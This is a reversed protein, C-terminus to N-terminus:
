MGISPGRSRGLSWSISGSERMLGSVSRGVYKELEPRWPVLTFDRSKEILAYKGSTLDLSRKFTGEIPQNPKAEVFRLGLEGSLQGAVARVERERLVRLLNRRYVVDEGQQSALGQEILWQQRLRLVKRVEGGYGTPALESKAPATLERDLWTEAHAHVLKEIPMPSLVQIRYPEARQKGQEYTLVRDLHDPAIIWTGSPQREPKGTARRIAELRRVHAEAFDETANRDHKLHFDVDYKGGSAAAVAVITRDVARVDVQKPDLRVTAGTPLTQETTGIDLYHSRGDVGDVVLYRREHDEDAAGRGVVKGIVPGSPLEPVPARIKAPEHVVLRESSPGVPRKGSRVRDFLDGVLDLKVRQHLTRVIDGRRGMDSLTQETARDLTWSLPGSKTALEMRELVRARGVLLQQYEADGAMPGEIHSLDVVNDKAQSLLDRDLRTLREAEVERSLQQRVEIESQPGLERTMIESARARIGRAIYDGAINLTKGDETVGRVLVHTHPHGTDFHDVAVWDLNTALDQEMRAMLDRTFNKLDGFERGDEPSVIFRFQHRDEAGREAFAKADAEDAFTSYFRTPGGDRTVGDRELYNVHRAVATAKGALKVVRAKVAVRRPRVKLGSGRDITWGSGRPLVAAIKAGRGRANFRGSSAGHTGALKPGGGRPNGGRRAVQELVRGRMDRTSPARVSDRRSRGVRPEFRDDDQPM